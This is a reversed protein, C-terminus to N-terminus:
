RAAGTLRYVRFRTNQYAVPLPLEAESVLLDLRYRSALADVREATLTSFDGIAQTREVVRVAVERAYIAIAADKVEELFVDREAAVRVSTGYKWAHGPDALVHVDRPQRAVYHMADQWDDNALHVGFLAREPHEIRMVYAGRVLSVAVALLAVARRARGSCLVGVLQVTALLDILWFVRSVQLQTPLAMRAGVLPLTVLFAAVLAAGGWLVASEDPHSLGNRRRWLWLGWALPLLGLNALWAWAPWDQPFLSDKSALAQLWIGDMRTLSSQLPGYGLAWVLVLGAAAVAPIALRRFRADLVVIAVGLLIAFWLATTVHILAGLGVLAIATWPKRRQVSALALVGLAFALMRPNYYPEFSNASTEPIRHRLTAAAGLALTMWRDGYSGFGVLVLGAWFLALSLLYVAFFALDLPLGSHTVLGAIAEDTLMLDAQAAILGADRPFSAPDLVRVVAPIHFAQDSAGYRYGGANATALLIFLLGGAWWWAAHWAAPAAAESPQNM